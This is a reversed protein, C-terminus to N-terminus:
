RSLLVRGRPGEVLLSPGSVVGVTQAGAFLDFFLDDLSGPPCARRTCALPSLTLTRSAMTYRGSCINCDGRISVRDGAFEAALAVGAPPIVTQGTVPYLATVVWRGGLTDPTPATPMEDCGAIALTVALAGILRPRRTM